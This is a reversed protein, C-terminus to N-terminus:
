WVVFEKFGFCVDYEIMIEVGLVIKFKIKIKFVWYVRLLYKFKFNDIIKRNDSNRLVWKICIILFFYDWYECM